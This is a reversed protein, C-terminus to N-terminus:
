EKAAAERLMQLLKEVREHVEESQNVVLLGGFEEMTGAGGSAQWSDPAVTTHIVRQLQQAPTLPFEGFFGGMGVACTIGSPPPGGAALSGGAASGSGFGGGSAGMPAAPAAAPPTAKAAAALLDRCNYVRVVQSSSLAERTGIIVVGDRIVYGLDPSVQRLALDLLMDGRVRKFKLSVPSDLALGAAELEAKQAHVELDLRDTVFELVDALPQQEFTAEMREALKRKTAANNAETSDAMPPAANAVKLIALAAARARDAAKAEAEAQARAAEAQVQAARAAAEQEQAMARNATIMAAFWLFGGLMM